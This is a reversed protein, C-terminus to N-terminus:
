HTPQAPGAAIPGLEPSAILALRPQRGGAGCGHRIFRADFEDHAGRAAYAVGLQLRDGAKPRANIPRCDFIFKLNPVVLRPAPLPDSLRRETKDGLYRCDVRTQLEGHHGPRAHLSLHSAPREAQPRSEPPSSQPALTPQHDVATQGRANLMGVDLRWPPPPTGTRRGVSAPPRRPRCRAAADVGSHVALMPPSRSDLRRGPAGGGGQHMQPPTGRMRMAGPDGPLHSPARGCAGNATAAVQARVSATSPAVGAFRFRHGRAHAPSRAGPWRGREM